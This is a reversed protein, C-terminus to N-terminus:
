VRDDIFSAPKTKKRAKYDPIYEAATRKQTGVKSIGKVLNDEKQMVHMTKSSSQNSVPPVNSTINNALMNDYEPKDITLSAFKAIDRKLKKRARYEHMYQAATKRKKPDTSFEVFNSPGSGSSIIVDIVPLNSLM